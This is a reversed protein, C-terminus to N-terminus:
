RGESFPKTMGPIYFQYARFESDGPMKVGITGGEKLVNWVFFLVDVAVNFLENKSLDSNDAMQQLEEAIAPKPTVSLRPTDKEKTDGRVALVAV